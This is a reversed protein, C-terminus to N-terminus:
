TQPNCKVAEKLAITLTITINCEQTHLVHDKWWLCVLYSLLPRVYSLTLWWYFEQSHPSCRPDLEWCTWVMEASWGVEQGTPVLAMEGCTFYNSCSTVIWRRVTGCSFHTPNQSRVGYVGEHHSNLCLSVKCRVLRM